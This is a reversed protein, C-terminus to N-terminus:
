AQLVSICISFSVSYWEFCGTGLRSFTSSCFLPPGQQWRPYISRKGCLFFVICRMTLVAAVSRQLRITVISGSVRQKNAKIDCSKWNNPRTYTKPMVISYSGVRVGDCDDVSNDPLYSHFIQFHNVNSVM